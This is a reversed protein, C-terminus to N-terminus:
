PSHTLVQLISLRHLLATKRPGLFQDATEAGLVVRRGLLGSSWPPSSPMKWPSTGLCRSPAADQTMVEPTAPELGWAGHQGSQVRSFYGAGWNM